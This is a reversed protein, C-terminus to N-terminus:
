PGTVNVVSNTSAGSSTGAPTTVTFEVTNRPGKVAEEPNTLDASFNSGDNAFVHMTYIGEDGEDIFGHVGKTLAQAYVYMAGACVHNQGYPGNGEPQCWIWFGVPSQWAGEAAFGVGSFIVQESPEAAASRRGSLAVSVAISTLLAFIGIVRRRNHKSKM